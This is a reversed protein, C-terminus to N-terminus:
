KACFTKKTFVCFLINISIIIKSWFKRCFRILFVFYHLCLFLPLWVPFDEIVKGLMVYELLDLHIPTRRNDWIVITSLQIFIMNKFAFVFVFLSVIFLCVRWYFYVNIIIMSHHKANDKRKAILARTLDM